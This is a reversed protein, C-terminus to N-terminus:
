HKSTTENSLPSTFQGLPDYSVDSNGLGSYLNNNQPPQTPVLQLSIHAHLHKCHTVYWSDFKPLRTYCRNLGKLEATTFSTNPLTTKHTLNITSAEAASREIGVINHFHSSFGQPTLIETALQQQYM